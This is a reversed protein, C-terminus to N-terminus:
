SGPRDASLRWQRYPNVHQVFGELEAVQAAFDHAIREPYASSDEWFMWQVQQEPRLSKMLSRPFSFRCHTHILHYKMLVDM